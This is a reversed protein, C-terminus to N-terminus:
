SESAAVLLPAPPAIVTLRKAASAVIVGVTFAVTPPPALM